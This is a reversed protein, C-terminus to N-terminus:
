NEQLNKQLYELVFNERRLWEPSNASGLLAKNVRIANEVEVWVPRFGLDREYGDLKQEGFGDSVECRYYHSTMKFTDFGTETDHDYEVVAGIEGGIHSLEAGCEERVERRLAQEHTEGAEVGGGPFKYDGVNASHVLLLRPGRQVVARVATRQITRGHINVGDARHLTTLLPM